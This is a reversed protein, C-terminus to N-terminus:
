LLFVSDSWYCYMYCFCWLYGRWGVGPPTLIRFTAGVSELPTEWWTYTHHLRKSRIVSLEACTGSSTSTVISIVHIESYFYTLKNIINIVHLL